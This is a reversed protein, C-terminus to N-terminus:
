ISQQLKVPVAEGHKIKQNASALVEQYQMEKTCGICKFTMSHTIAPINNDDDDSPEASDNCEEDRTEVTLSEDSVCESDQEDADELWIWDWM